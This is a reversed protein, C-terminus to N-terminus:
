GLNAIFGNKLKRFVLVSVILQIVTFVFAILFARASPTETYYLASRFIEMFYSIPNYEVIFSFRDPVITRGYVIPSSYFLFMLLTTWIMGIDRFYVNISALILSLGFTFVSFLLLGPIIWLINWHWNLGYYSMVIFFPVLTFLLHVITSMIGSIPLIIRPISLSKIISGGRIFSFVIENTSNAFYYWFILGSLLYLPYNEFEKMIGSFVFIFIFMICLPNLFGWLVGLLSNKYRVKLNSWALVRCIYIYQSLSYQSNKNNM